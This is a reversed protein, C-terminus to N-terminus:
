RKEAVVERTTTRTPLVKNDSKDSKIFLNEDFFLICSREDEFNTFKIIVTKQALLWSFYSQFNSTSKMYRKKLFVIRHLGELKFNQM